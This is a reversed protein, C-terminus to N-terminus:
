LSSSLGDLFSVLENIIYIYENRELVDNCSEILQGFIKRYDDKSFSGRNEMRPFSDRRPHWSTM